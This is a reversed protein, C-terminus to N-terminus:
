VGIDIGYEKLSFIDAVSETNYLKVSMFLMIMLSLGLIVLRITENYKYWYTSIAIILLIIGGFGLGVKTSKTQIFSSLIITTLAIAILTIHIKLEVPQLLVNKKDVCQDYADKQTSWNFESCMNIIDTYGFIKSVLKNFFWPHLLAIAIAFIIESTNM